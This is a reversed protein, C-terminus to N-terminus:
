LGLADKIPLTLKDFILEVQKEVNAQKLKENEKKLAAVEEVLEDKNYAVAGRSKRKATAKLRKNKLSELETNITDLFAKFGKAYSSKQSLTTNATGINDAVSRVSIHYSKKFQFHSKRNHREIYHLREGKLKLVELYAKFSINKKSVWEPLEDENKTPEKFFELM